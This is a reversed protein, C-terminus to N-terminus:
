RLRKQKRFVTEIKKQLKEANPIAAIEQRTLVRRLNPHFAKQIAAAPDVGAAPKLAKSIRTKIAAKTVPKIRDAVLNALDDPRAPSATLIENASLKLGEAKFEKQLPGSLGAVVEPAIGLRPVGAYPEHRYINAKTPFQENHVKLVRNRTKADAPM